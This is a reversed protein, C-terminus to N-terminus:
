GRKPEQLSGRHEKFATLLPGEPASVPGSVVPSVSEPGVLRGLNKAGNPRIESAAMAASSSSPLQTFRSHKREKEKSCRM